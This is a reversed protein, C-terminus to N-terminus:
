IRINPSGELRINTNSNVLEIKTANKLFFVLVGVSIFDLLNQSGPVGRPHDRVKQLHIGLRNQSVPFNFDHCMYTVVKNVNISM